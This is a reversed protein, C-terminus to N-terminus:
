VSTGVVRDFRGDETGLPSLRTLWHTQRGSFTITEEYDISQGLTLCRRYNTEMQSAAEASLTSLHRLPRGVDGPGLGSIAGQAPNIGGLRLEGDAAVDIISIPVQIGQYLAQLLRGRDEAAVRQGELHAGLRRQEELAAQLALRLQQEQFQGAFSRRRELHLHRSVLIGFGNILALSLVFSALTPGQLDRALLGIGLVMLSYGLGALLQFVFCNPLIFYFVLVVVLDIFLHGYYDSPRTLLVVAGMATTALCYLLAALDMPHTRRRTAIFGVATLGLAVHCFRLWELGNKAQASAVLVSDSHFFVLHPLLTVLIVGITLRRQPLLYHQRYRHELAPDALRAWWPHLSLDGIGRSDALTM